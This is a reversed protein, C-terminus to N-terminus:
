VFCMSDDVKLSTQKEEQKRKGGVRMRKEGRRKVQVIFLEAHREEVVDTDGQIDEWPFDPLGPCCRLKSNVGRGQSLSLRAPGSCGGGEMMCCVGHRASICLALTGQELRPAGALILYSPNNWPTSALLFLIMQVVSRCSLLREM